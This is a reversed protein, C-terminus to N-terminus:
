FHTLLDKTTKIGGLSILKQQVSWARCQGMSHKDGPALVLTNTGSLLQGLEGAVDQGKWNWTECLLGQSAGCSHSLCM